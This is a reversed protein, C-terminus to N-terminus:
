PIGVTCGGVGVWDPVTKPFIRAAIGFMKPAIKPLPLVPVVPCISINGVDALGAKVGVEVLVPPEVLM